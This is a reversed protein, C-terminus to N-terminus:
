KSTDPGSEAPAQASLSDAAMATTDATPATPKEQAALVSDGPEAAKVPAATSEPPVTEPPTEEVPAPTLLPSLNVQLKNFIQEKANSIWQKHIALREESTLPIHRSFGGFGAFATKGSAHVQLPDMMRFSQIQQDYIWLRLELDGIYRGWLPLLAIRYPRIEAKGVKAFVLIRCGLTVAASEAQEPSLVTGSLIGRRRAHTLSDLSLFRIGPFFVIKEFVEKELTSIFEPAKDREFGLYAATLTDASAPALLLPILLCPFLFKRM